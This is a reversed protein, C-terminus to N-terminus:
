YPTSRGRAAEVARAEDHVHERLDANRQRVARVRLVAHARRHRDALQLGAIEDEEGTRAMDADVDAAALEDVRGVRAVDDLDRRQGAPVRGLEGAAAADLPA